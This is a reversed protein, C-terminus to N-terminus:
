RVEQRWEGEDGRLFDYFDKVNKDILADNEDIVVMVIM